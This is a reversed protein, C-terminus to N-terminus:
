KMITNYYDPKQANCSLMTTLEATLIDFICNPLGLADTRCTFGHLLLDFLNFYNDYFKYCVYGFSFYGACFQPLTSNVIFVDSNENFFRKWM